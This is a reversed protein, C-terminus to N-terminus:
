TFQSYIEKQLSRTVSNGVYKKLMGKIIVLMITSRFGVAKLCFICSFSECLFSLVRDNGLQINQNSYIEKWSENDLLQPHNLLNPLFLELEPTDQSNQTLSTGTRFRNFRFSGLLSVEYPGAIMGSDSLILDQSIM